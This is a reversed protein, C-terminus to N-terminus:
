FASAGSISTIIGCNTILNLPIILRLSMLSLLSSFPPPAVVFCRQPPYSSVAGTPSYEIILSRHVGGAGWPLLFSPPILDPPVSLRWAM